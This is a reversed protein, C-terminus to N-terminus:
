WWGNGNERAEAVSYLQGVQCEEVSAPLIVGYEKFLMMNSGARPNGAAQGAEWQKKAAGRRTAWVAAQAVEDHHATGVAREATVEGAGAAGAKGGGAM